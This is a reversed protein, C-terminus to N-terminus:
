GRSPGQFGLLSCSALWCFSRRGSLGQAARRRPSRALGAPFFLGAAQLGTGGGIAIGQPPTIRFRGPIVQSGGDPPAKGRLLDLQLVDAQRSILDHLRGEQDILFLKLGFLPHPDVIDTVIGLDDFTQGIMLDPAIVFGTATPAQM